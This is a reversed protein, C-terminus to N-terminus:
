LCLYPINTKLKRKTQMYYTSAVLKVAASSLIGVVMTTVLLLAIVKKLRGNNELNKM